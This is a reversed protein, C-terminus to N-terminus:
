SATRALVEGAKKFQEARYDIVEQARRATARIMANHANIKEQIALLFEADPKFWEGTLMLHAFRMHFEFEDKTSYCLWVGLWECPYPGSNYTLKRKDPSTSYGVKIPQPDHDPILMRVAYLYPM